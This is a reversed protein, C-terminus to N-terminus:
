ALAPLSWGRSRRDRVAVDCRRLMRHCETRCGEAYAAVHRPPWLGFGKVSAPKGIQRAHNVSADPIRFGSM